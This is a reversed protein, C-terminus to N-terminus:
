TLLTGGKKESILKVLRHGYVPHGTGGWFWATSSHEAKDELWKLRIQEM